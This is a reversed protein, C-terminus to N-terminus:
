ICIVPVCIDRVIARGDIPCVTVILAFMQCLHSGVDSATNIAVAATMYM